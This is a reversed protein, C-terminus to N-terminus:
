KENDIRVEKKNNKGFVFKINIFSFWLFVFSSSSSNLGYSISSELLNIYFYVIFCLVKINPKKYFKNELLVVILLIAILSIGWGNKGFDMIFNYFFTTNNNYLNISSESINVFNQAHINFYYSPVKYNVGLLMKMILVLPEIIFAFTMYGHMKSELGYEISHKLIYELFSLSGTLYLVIMDVFGFISRTRLATILWLVIVILFIYKKKIKIKVKLNLFSITAIYSLLFCLILTRGGFSITGILIDMIALKIYKKSNFGLYIASIIITFVFISNPIARTGLQLFVNSSESLSNYITTRVLTLDFGNIYVIKLANIFNMSIGLIAIINLVIVYRRNVMKDLEALTVSVNNSNKTGCYM